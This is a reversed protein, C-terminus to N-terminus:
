QFVYQTFLLNEVVDKQLEEKLINAVTDKAQQRLTERLTLDQITKKDQQNFFDILADQVLPLNLDVLDYNDQGRVVVQVQVVIYGIKRGTNQYFTMINPTIMFYMLPEKEVEADGEAAEEASCPLPVLFLSFVLLSLALIKSM